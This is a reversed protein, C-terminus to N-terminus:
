YFFYLLLINFFDICRRETPTEISPSCKQQFNRLGASSGGGESSANIKKHTAIVPINEGGEQRQEFVTLKNFVIGRSAIITM